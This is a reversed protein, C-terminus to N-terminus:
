IITQHCSNMFVKYITNTLAIPRLDRVTPKSKKLILVTKSEKWTKPIQGNELIKNYLQTIKSLITTDKILFKYIENKIGDPGPAKNKKMKEIQKEVMEQSIKVKKMPSVGRGDRSVGEMTINRSNDLWEIEQELRQIYERKTELNWTQESKNEERAMTEKWTEVLEKKLEEDEMKSGEESYVETKLIEKNEGRIEKIHKSMKKNPNDNEKIKKVIKNEYETIEGRVMRGIKEKRAKLERKLEEKRINNKEKRLRKCIDRKRSIEKKINENYWPKDKNEKAGIKRKVKLHKECQEKIKDEMKGMNVINEGQILNKVNNRMKIMRDDTMKYYSIIKGEGERKKNNGGITVEVTILNHDSINIKEGQEDAEMMEIKDYMSENCFIFDIVSEYIGQRWTVRGKAKTEDTNILILDTSEMLNRVLRGNQNLPQNGLIGIHANFDGIVILKEEKYKVTIEM